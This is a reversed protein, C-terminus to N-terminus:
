SSSSYLKSLVGQRLSQRRGLPGAAPSTGMWSLDYEVESAHSCKLTCPNRYGETM